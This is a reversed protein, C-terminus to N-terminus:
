RLLGELERELEAVNANRNVVRGKDDVLLTLPLTMVGMELARESSTLGGKGYLHQWPARRTAVFAEADAPQDDLNVGLVALKRGHKSALEKLQAMDAKCPECWTAWYHVVVYRGRYPPAALDAQGGGLVPGKLSIAKGISGLRRMAGAAKRGSTSRPSEAALRKYWVVAEDNEGAFEHAMGLQMMADEADPGQPHRDIFAALDKTWSEQVKVYDAKPDRLQLGYEAWLLRYRIHALTAAGARGKVAENELRKLREIGESYGDAQVAASLMDALQDRWQDRQEGAPSAQALRGIVDAREGILEKQKAPPASAMERDLRELSDMLRQMDETPAPGGAEGRSFSPVSFVNALEPGDGGARPAEAVRWADGIKFLSGLLLQEPAGGNDVLASANEYVYLDKKAGDIGEPIVGPRAAGFDVFRAGAPLAQKSGILKRFDSPARRAQENLQKTLAEGAGLRKIEDGSLLLAAFAKEDKRQVADAMLEAVEHPSIVRWRDIEGDKDTDVAWRAGGTHLWRFEDAQGDGDTDIDRYVELGDRFYSWVNVRGNGNADSFRRLTKGLADRVQWTVKNSELAIECKEAEAASPKDYEVGRQVPELTLAQAASYSKAAHATATPALVLALLTFFLPARNAGSRSLPM